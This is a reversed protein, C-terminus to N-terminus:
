SAHMVRVPSAQSLEAAFAFLGPAGGTHLFIVTEDPAIAGRRVHDILAAMAKGSYVPDLLVGEHRAVIHIAELCASTPIGYGDGIFDQDTSLDEENVSVKVGMLAAVENVMRHARARKQAEGGSVAIGFLSYSAGYIRAGLELGAQTGRSGSAFYMRTPKEGAEHLQAVLERTGEVYGLAGIANSGGVPIVYPREGRARLQEVAEAVGEDGAGLRPDEPAPVFRVDAGFVYDLLLNGQYPPPTRRAALVLTTKLGAVGGAAATMRAHNSQAAGTTVLATAGNALADGVLFELKRAKNGGLALGTLDDRKLLIRPCRQEGGLSIRLRHAEQLPTPLTTLPYRPCNASFPRVAPCFSSLPRM